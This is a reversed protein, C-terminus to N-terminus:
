CHSSGQGAYMKRGLQMVPAAEPPPPAPPRNKVGLNSNSSMSNRTARSLYSKQCNSFAPPSPFTTEPKFSFRQEFVEDCGAAGKFGNLDCFRPIAILIPLRKEEERGGHTAMLFLVAPIPPVRVSRGSPMAPKRVEVVRNQKPVSSWSGGGGGGERNEKRKSAKRVRSRQVTQIYCAGDPEGPRLLRALASLFAS